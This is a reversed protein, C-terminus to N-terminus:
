FHQHLLLKLRSIKEEEALKNPGYKQLRDAAEAETLGKVSTALTQLVGEVERQYWKM